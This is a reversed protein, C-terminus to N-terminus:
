FRSSAVEELDKFKVPPPAQVKAFQELRTFEDQGEQGGAGNIQGMGLPATSGDSRTFRKAQTSLGMQELLSPGGGPVHAMADKEGPDLSIHYEGTGTPDVFEITINQGIGEMYHYTWDDFGYVTTQGGGETMPRNYTSGASHTEIEDAPGWMIYIRGRDTRWGPIGSSFRENAYAIRRYHEEKFENEVTDPTPDRRQWFGEIFQEREENTQLQLFASREEDTIIYPVEEELWKKYPTALEKELKRLNKKGKDDGKKKGSDQQKDTPADKQDKDQAHANSCFPLLLAGGMMFLVLMRGLRNM